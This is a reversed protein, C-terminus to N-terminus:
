LVGDLVDEVACEPCIGSHTWWDSLLDPASPVEVVDTWGPPIESVGDCDDRDCCICALRIM